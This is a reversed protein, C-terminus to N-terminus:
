RARPSPRLVRVAAAALDMVQQHRRDGLGRGEELGVPRHDVEHVRSGARQTEGVVSPDLATAASRPDPGDVQRDPHPHEPPGDGFAADDHGIVVEVISCERVRGVGVADYGVNAHARHDDRGITAPLSTKPARPAKAVRGCAKSAAWVTSTRANASWAAPAIAFARSMSASSADLRASASRASTSRESRSIVARMLAARSRGAIRWSPTSSATRRMPPLPARISRISGPM